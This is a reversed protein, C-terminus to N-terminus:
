KEPELMASVWEWYGKRTDGNAVEYQWDAVPYEPHENWYGYKNILPEPPSDDEQTEEAGELQGAYRDVYDANILAEVWDDTKKEEAM